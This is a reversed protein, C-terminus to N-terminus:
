NLGVNPYTKLHDYSILEGDSNVVILDEGYTIHARYFPKVKLTIEYEGGVGYLQNIKLIETDYSIWMLGEPADKDDSYIETIAKDIPDRLSNILAYKLTDCLETDAENITKSQVPTHHSVFIIVLVLIVAAKKM